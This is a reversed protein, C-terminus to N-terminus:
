GMCANFDMLFGMGTCGENKYNARKEFRIESRAYRQM